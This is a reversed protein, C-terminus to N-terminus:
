VPRPRARALSAAAESPRQASTAEDRRRPRSKRRPAPFFLLCSAPAPPLLLRCSASFFYRIQSKLYSIRSNSILSKLDDDRLRGGAGAERRRSRGGAKRAARAHGTNSKATRQLRANPPAFEKLPRAPSLHRFNTARPLIRDANPLSPITASIATAKAKPRITVTYRESRLGFM